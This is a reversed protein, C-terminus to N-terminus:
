VSVQAVAVDTKAAGIEKDLKGSKFFAAFKAVLTKSVARESFAKLGSKTLRIGDGVTEFNKEALHYSIARSGMLTTVAARRVVPRAATFLGLVAMAAMTHAFLKTGAKPRVSDTLIHLKIAKAKSVKTVAKSKAM